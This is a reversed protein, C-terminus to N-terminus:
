PLSECAVGNGDEDLVHIDGARSLCYEYCQQAEAQSFFYDCDFFDGSCDWSTPPLTATAEPPAEAATVAQRLADVSANLRNMLEFDVPEGRKIRGSALGDVQAIETNLEAMLLQRLWLAQDCPTPFEQAQELLRELGPLAAQLTEVEPDVAELPVNIAALQSVAGVYTDLLATDCIAGVTSTVVEVPPPTHSAWPTDTPVPTWTPPPLTATPPPSGVTPVAYTPVATPDSGGCAVILLFMLLALAFYKM